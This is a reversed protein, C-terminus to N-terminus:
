PGCEQKQFRSNQVWMRAEQVKIKIIPGCGQQKPRSDHTWMEAITVMFHPGVDKSSSGKPAMVMFYTYDLMRGAAVMHFGCPPPM